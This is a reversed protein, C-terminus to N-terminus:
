NLTLWNYKVTNKIRTACDVRIAKTWYDKKGLIIFHSTLHTM